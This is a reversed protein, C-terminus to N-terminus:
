VVLELEDAVRVPAGYDTLDCAVAELPADARDRFIPEPVVIDWPYAHSARWGRECIAVRGWLAVRGLVRPAPDAAAEALAAELEAAGQVGCACGVHPVLHRRGLRRWGARLCRAELPADTRWLVPAGVSSLRFRGDSADIRWTRWALVPEIADPVRGRRTRTRAGGGIPEITLVRLVKGVPM